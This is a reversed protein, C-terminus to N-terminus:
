YLPLKKYADWFKWIFVVIMVIAAFSAFIAVKGKPVLEELTLQWEPPLAEFKRQFFSKKQVKNKM